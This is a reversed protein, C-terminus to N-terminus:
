MSFWENSGGVDLEAFYCVIEKRSNTDSETGQANNEDNTEAVFFESHAM